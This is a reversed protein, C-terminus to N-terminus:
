RLLWELTVALFAFVGLGAIPRALAMAIGKPKQKKEEFALVGPWAQLPRCASGASFSTQRAVALPISVIIV